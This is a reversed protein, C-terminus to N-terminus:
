RQQDSSRRAARVTPLRATELVVVAARRALDAAEAAAAREM